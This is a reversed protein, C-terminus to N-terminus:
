PPLGRLALLPISTSCAGEEQLRGHCPSDGMVGIFQVSNKGNAFTFGPLTVYRMCYPVWGSM